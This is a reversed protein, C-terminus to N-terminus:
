PEPWNGDLAQAVGDALVDLDAREIPDFSQADTMMRLRTLQEAVVHHQDPTTAAWAIERLLWLLRSLVAPDAAGYRRPQAVALEVLDAFSPRHLVVRITQDEDSLLRPGLDRTAIDVLLASSHGLAHIATTPDNIGPSLAKTTVDTLQRLGFGVDQAATREPGTHIASAARHRLQDLIDADFLHGHLPWCSGIPTGAILSSGPQRHIILIADTDGAASLLAREDIWVLFGSSPALLQVNTRRCKPFM